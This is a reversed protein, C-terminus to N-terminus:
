RLWRTVRSLALAGLAGMAMATLTQRTGIGEDLQVRPAIIAPAPPPIHRTRPRGSATAAWATCFLVLYATIYAFVMLGLVPGFTAGAPSRLVVRLYISGVQKFAEFGIAAMLAARASDAVSVKERPLRAIMWAFLLWSVATSIVIALLGFLWDLVSLEPVGLWKLAAALPADHSLTTLGVTAMTVAFTGMLALLDSLKNRAFGPSEIREDWWMETLAQRLHSIWGLGAWLATALGIIGVSARAAIASNILHLLQDGLAGTVQSRIHEDITKLLEPRRVLVFGFAAFGVMLLPFLAFITYYTLAAAFFGGNREDFRQYARIVHDLWRHRDRLRDLIGAKAPEGMTHSM